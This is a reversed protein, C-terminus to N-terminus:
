CLISDQKARWSIGNWSFYNRNAWPHLILKMAHFLWWDKAIIKMHCLSKTADWFILHVFYFKLGNRLDGLSYENCNKTTARRYCDEPENESEPVKKRCNIRDFLQKLFKKSKERKSYSFKAPSLGKSKFKNSFDRWEATVLALISNYSTKGRM